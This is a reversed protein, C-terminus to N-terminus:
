KKRLTWECHSPMSKYPWWILVATKCELLKFFFNRQKRTTKKKRETVRFLEWLIPHACNKPNRPPTLNKPPAKYEMLYTFLINHWVRQKVKVSMELWCFIKLIGKYATQTCSSVVLHHCHAINSKFRIRGMHDNRAPIRWTLLSSSKSIKFYRAQTVNRKRYRPWIDM